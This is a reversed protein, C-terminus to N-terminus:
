GRSETDRDHDAGNTEAGGLRKGLGGGSICLRREGGITGAEVDRGTVQGRARHTFAVYTVSTGDNRGGVPACRIPPRDRVGLAAADRIHRDRGLRIGDREIRLYLEEEVAEGAAAAID